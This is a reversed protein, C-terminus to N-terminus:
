SIRRLRPFVHPTHYTLNLDGFPVVEPDTLASIECTSLGEARVELNPSRGARANKSGGDQCSGTWTQLTTVHPVVVFGGSRSRWFCGHANPLQFGVRRPDQTVHSFRTRRVDQRMSAAGYAHNKWNVRIHGRSGFVCVGAGGPICEQAGSM